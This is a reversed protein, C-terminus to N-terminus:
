PPPQLVTYPPALDASKETTACRESEPNAAYDHSCTPIYQRPEPVIGESESAASSPQPTRECQTTRSTKATRRGTALAPHASPSPLMALQQSQQQSQQQGQKMARVASAAAIATAETPVVSRESLRMRTGDPLTVTPADVAAVVSASSVRLKLSVPDLHRATDLLQQPNMPHPLRIMRHM